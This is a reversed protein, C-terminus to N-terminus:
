KKLRSKLQVNESKIREVEKKLEIVYLTLEEVKKLLLVDMEGLKHGNEKVEEASPIEPLHKNSKVFSEVDNLPMLKYDKEFVYDAWTSSTNEVQVEKAGIKGNVALKYGNPNNVMTAGVGVNGAFYNDDDSGAQYLGYDRTAATNYIYVGYGNNVTGAGSQVRAWVGYANTVTGNGSSENGATCNAGISETLVGGKNNLSLLYAGWVKSATGSTHSATAYSFFGWNGWSPISAPTPADLKIVVGGTNTNTIYDTGYPYTGWQARAVSITVMILMLLFGLRKM